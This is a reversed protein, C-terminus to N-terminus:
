LIWPKAGCRHPVCLGFGACTFAGSTRLYWRWAHVCAELLTLFFGVRPRPTLCRCRLAPSPRTGASDVSSGPRGTPPRPETRLALGGGGLEFALSAVRMRTRNMSRSVGPGGAMIALEAILSWDRAGGSIGCLIWLGSGSQPFQPSVLAPHIPPSTSKARARGPSAPCLRDNPHSPCRGMNIM